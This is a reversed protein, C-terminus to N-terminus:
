CLCREIAVRRKDQRKLLHAVCWLLEEKCVFFGRLAERAVHFRHLADAEELRSM